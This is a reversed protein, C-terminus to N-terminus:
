VVILYIQLYNRIFILRVGTENNIIYNDLNHIPKEPYFKVPM